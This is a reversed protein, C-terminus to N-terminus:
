FRTGFSVRFQQTQDGKQKVVPDAISLNILGFPTNWSVGVGAGVRPGSSNYLTPTVGNYSVTPAGWLSGM